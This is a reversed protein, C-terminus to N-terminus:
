NVTVANEYVGWFVGMCAAVLLDVMKLGEDEIILKGLKASNGRMGGGARERALSLDLRDEDFPSASSDNSRRPSAAEARPLSGPRPSAPLFTPLNFRIEAVTVAPSSSSSQPSSTHSSNPSPIIHRCRITRSNAGPGFICTGNWPSTFTFNGKSKLPNPKRRPPSPDLSEKPPHYNSPTVKRIFKLPGPPPGTQPQASSHSILHRMSPPPSIGFSEFSIPKNDAFKKYGPTTIEITISGDPAVELPATCNTITGVNWQNGYTPDRRILTIHFPQSVSADRPTDYSCRPKLSPLLEEGSVNSAGWLRDKGPIRSKIVPRVGDWSTRGPSIDFSNRLRHFTERIPGPSTPQASLSKAHKGETRSGRAGIPSGLGQQPGPISRPPLLPSDWPRRTESVGASQVEDSSCDASVSRTKGPHTRELTDSLSVSSQTRTEVTQVATGPVPKRRVRNLLAFTNDKNKGNSEGNGDHESGQLQELQLRRKEEEARRDKEINELVAEDGPGAVHCFYVSANISEPSFSSKTPPKLPSLFVDRSGPVRVIYLVLPELREQTPNRPYNPPNSALTTFSLLSKAEVPQVPTLPAQDQSTRAM